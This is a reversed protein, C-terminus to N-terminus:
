CNKYCRGAFKSSNSLVTDSNVAEWGSALPYPLQWHSISSKGTEPATTLLMQFKTEVRCLMVYQKALPVDKHKENM